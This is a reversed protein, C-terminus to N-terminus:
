NLGSVLIATVKSDGIEMKGPGVAEQSEGSAGCKESITGSSKLQVAASNTITVEGFVVERQGEEEGVNPVTSGVKPFIGKGEAMIECEGAGYKKGLDFFTGLGTVVYNGAPVTVTATGSGDKSYAHSPGIEGISGPPGNEGKPGPPGEKGAAGIPGASAAGPAGPAGRAGMAGTNGKLEKLVKPNIQKTSTILYHKAALAGGSMAFFLALTAVVNAYNLRGRM